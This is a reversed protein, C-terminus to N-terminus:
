CRLCRKAIAPPSSLPLRQDRKRAGVVRRGPRGTATVLARAERDDWRGDPLRPGPGANLTFLVDFGVDAAFRHMADWRERTLLLSYGADPLSPNASLDYAVFDAATGGVRLVAPALPRALARLQAREFDFPSRIEEEFGGDLAWFRGGLAQATDIAVSLFRPDVEAIVDGVEVAVPRGPPVPQACAAVAFVSWLALSRTM